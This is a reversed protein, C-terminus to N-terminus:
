CQPIAESEAITFSLQDEATCFEPTEQASQETNIDIVQETTAPPSVKERVKKREYLQGYKALSLFHSQVHSEISRKDHKVKGECIKCIYKLNTVKYRGSFQRLSLNHQSKVHEEFSSSVKSQYNCEVCTFTNGAYWSSEDEVEEPEEAEVKKTEKELEKPEIEKEFVKVPLELKKLEVNSVTPEELELKKQAVSDGKGPEFAECEDQGKRQAEGQYDITESGDSTERNNNDEEEYEESSKSPDVFTSEQSAEVEIDKFYASFDENEIRM